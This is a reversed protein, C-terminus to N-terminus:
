FLKDGRRRTDQEEKREDRMVVLGKGRGSREEKETEKVQVGNDKM